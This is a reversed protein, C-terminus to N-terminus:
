IFMSSVDINKNTETPQSSGTTKANIRAVLSLSVEGSWEMELESWVGQIATIVDSIVHDPNVRSM